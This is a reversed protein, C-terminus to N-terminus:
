KMRWEYEKHYSLESAMGDKSIAFLSVNSNNLDKFLTLPLTFSFGSQLAAKGYVKAVDPRNRNNEGSYLFEGNAFILIAEPLQSDRVDFSWGKFSVADHRVITKDLRGKLRGHIVPIKEGDSSLIIVEKEDKSTTLSYTVSFLNEPRELQLQGNAGASVLFVDVDNEGLHFSKEPVIASFKIKGGESQFTSTVARITDDVSIALNIPVTPTGRMLMRGTIYCPVYKTQPDVNAFFYSQDIEVKVNRKRLVKFKSTHHGVLENCPGIKFLGDTKAGSGFIALKRNLADFKEKLAPDYTYKKKHIVTKNPRESLSTNFVSQGDVPWPLSVDLTEAITPLIDITEVNRDSIVGKKQNPLKIFLPVSIICPFSKKTLGRRSDSAQFNNGHDATIIILSRDYIGINKLSTLLEGLLKDTYGLQLLYRQYGKSVVFEDNNWSDASLGEIPYSGYMKGSPLFEYPMHPLFVHMFNLTPKNNEASRISHIFKKFLQVRDSTRHKEKRIDKEIEARNKGAFGKWTKTVDPLEAAFRPPLIIHLYVIFIDSLLSNLRKRSIARTESGLQQPCLRTGHEVVNMRYFQNLFTFLNHPYDSVIPLIDKKMPPYLGTLIAPVANATSLAVTTANRFWCSDAALAAFNPYRIPDIQRNEDMLSISTFEDFIVMIIEIDSSIKPGELPLEVKKPFVVKYVPSNFLFLTPFLLLGPLLFTILTKIPKIKIYGLAFVVGVVGACILIVTGPIDGIKKLGPLVIIAVLGSVLLGHVGKRARRGFLGAVVEILVVLAPLLVCLILILFIIDVPESHHAVFFEANRSLLDFLPQALAFSFLVFIHLTDIFFDKKQQMILM